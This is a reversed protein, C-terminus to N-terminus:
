KVEEALSVGIRTKESSNYKYVLQGFTNGDVQLVAHNEGGIGSESLAQKFAAVLQNFDIKGTQTNSSSIANNTPVVQGAAIPPIKLSNQPLMQVQQWSNLKPISDSLTQVVANNGNIIASVPNQASEQAKKFPNFKDLASKIGGWIKDWINKLGNMVDSFVKKISNWVSIFTEKFGNLYTKYGEIVNNFGKKIEDFNLTFIGKIIQWVGRVVQVFGNIVVKFSEIVQGFTDQLYQKIEDWHQKITAALGVLLGIAAVIWTVPNQANVLVMAGAVILLAGSILKLINVLNRGSKSISNIADFLIWLGTLLVAGGAGGRQWGLLKILGGIIAISAFLAQTFNKWNLGSKNIDIMALVLDGVGVTLAAVAAAAPGLTMYAGGIIEINDKIMGTLNTWNIGHELQDHATVFKNIAGVAIAVTGAIKPGFAMWAGGITELDELTEAALAAPNMGNKWIKTTTIVKNIAGNILALAGAVKPGFAMWAGGILETAAITEKILNDWNIGENIRSQAANISDIIGLGISVLGAIQKGFTKSIAWLGIAKGIAKIIEQLGKFKELWSLDPEKFDKMLDINKMGASESKINKGAAKTDKVVLKNIEDFGALDKVAKKASKGLGGIAKGQKGLNINAAQAKASQGSLLRIFAGLYALAKAILNIFSILAPLIAQILPQFAYVFSAKLNSMAKSLEASSQVTQQFYLKLQQFIDYFIAGLAVSSALRGIKRFMGSFGSILSNQFSKFTASVKALSSSVVKGFNAFGKSITNPVKAIETKLAMLQKPVDDTNINVDFSIQGGNAALQIV